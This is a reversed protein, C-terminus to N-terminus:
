LEGDRHFESQYHSCNAQECTKPHHCDMLHGFRCLMCATPARAGLPCEGRTILGIGIAHRLEREAKDIVEQSNRDINMM